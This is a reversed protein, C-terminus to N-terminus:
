ICRSQQGSLACFWGIAAASTLLVVGADNGYFDVFGASVGSSKLSGIEVTPM